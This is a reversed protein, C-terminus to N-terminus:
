AKLVARGNVVDIGIDEEHLILCYITYNANPNGSLTYHFNLQTSENKLGEEQHRLDFYLIGYLAKFSELSITPSTFYSNTDKQYEMLTRYAQSIEVSPNMYELPYYTGNALELRANSININNAINFTNFTLMNQEQSNLKNETLVWIFVHRPKRIASTIRFTSQRLTSPDSKEIREKLYSWTHPKLFSSLFMSEGETNFIMKPVWLVMRTVIVRGDNPANVGGAKFILDADNELRIEISLKSNPAIQNEFSNFFSYRNLPININNVAAGTLLSKRAFFGSNYSNNESELVTREEWANNDDNRAHQVRRISYQKGEAEGNNTDPYFFMSPGFTDTYSASLETLNKINIAHNVNPSDLVNLGNIDVKLQEILSHGGNIIAIEDNGGYGTNDMKTLKFDISIYANYLDFPNPEATSDLVFRYGSKLQAQNNAPMQISNQLEISTYEYRKCYRSSRFTM